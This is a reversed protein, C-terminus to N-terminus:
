FLDLTKADKVIAEKEKLSIRRDFNNEPPAKKSLQVRQLIISQPKKIAKYLNVQADYYLPIKESGEEKCIPKGLKVTYADAGRLLKKPIQKIITYQSYLEKGKKGEYPIEVKITDTKKVLALAFPKVCCLSKKLDHPRVWFKLAGGLFKALPKVENAWFKVEEPSFIQEKM